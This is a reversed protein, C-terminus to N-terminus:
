LEEFHIRKMSSALNPSVGVEPRIAEGRVYDLLESSSFDYLDRLGEHLINVSANLDRDHATGCQPCVWERVDLTMESRKHGCHNCTKSSPYWRSIKHFSRGYWQCKYSLQSVLESWSADSISKALKRNQKMGSVNLNETVILDFNEVLFASINHLYHARQRAIKAHIRAVKLRQRAYRASGRTKRSLHQQAARLKAQSERFWRPNEFSIGNSLVLLDKLGLDIGVSRGTNEKLVVLEQVLISVFYENCKNRSITVSRVQGAFKRDIVVKIPTM